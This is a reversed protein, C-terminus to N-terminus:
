RSALIANIEDQNFSYTSFDDENLISTKQLNDEEDSAWFLPSYEDAIMNCSIEHSAHNLRANRWANDNHTMNRLAHASLSGKDRILSCIFSKFKDPAEVTESCHIVSKGFKNFSHYVDPVVPGHKWASISNHFLPKGTMGLFYAQAYYLLKQLKMHTIPIGQKEAENLIWDAVEHADVTM